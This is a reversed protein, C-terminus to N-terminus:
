LKNIRAKKLLLLKSTTEVEKITKKVRVKKEKEIKVEVEVEITIVERNTWKIKSGHIQLM